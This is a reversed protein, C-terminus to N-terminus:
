DGDGNTEGKILLTRVPTSTRVKEYTRPYRRKLLELDVGERESRNWTALVRDKPGFLETCEGMFARIRDSLQTETSELYSIFNKVRRLDAVAIEIDATAVCQHKGGFNVKGTM